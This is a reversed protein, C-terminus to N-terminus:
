IEVGEGLVETVGTNADDANSRRRRRRPAPEDEAVNESLEVKTIQAGGDTDDTAASGLGLPKTDYAKSKDFDSRKIPDFVLENGGGAVAFRHVVNRADNPIAIKLGNVRSTVFAM